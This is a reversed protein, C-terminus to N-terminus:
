LVLLLRNSMVQQKARISSSWADIMPRRKVTKEVRSLSHSPACHVRASSRCTVQESPGQSSSSRQFASWGSSRFVPPTSSEGSHVSLTWVVVTNDDAEYSQMMMACQLDVSTGCAHQHRM